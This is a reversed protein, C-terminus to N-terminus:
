LWCTLKGRGGAYGAVRSPGDGAKNTGDTANGQSLHRDAYSRQGSREM